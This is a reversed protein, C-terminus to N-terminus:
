QTTILKLWAHLVYGVFDVLFFADAGSLRWRRADAMQQRDLLMHHSLLYILWDHQQVSVVACKFSECGGFHGDFRAPLYAWASKIERKFNQSGGIMYISAQDELLQCSSNGLPSGLPLVQSDPSKHYFNMHNTVIFITIIAAKFIQFYKRKRTSHSVDQWAHQTM